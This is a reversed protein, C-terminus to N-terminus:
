HIFANYSYKDNMKKITRILNLIIKNQIDYGTEPDELILTDYSDKSLVFLKVEGKANVDASCPKGDFFSLEGFFMGSGFYSVVEQKQDYHYLPLTIAATGQGILYLNGGPKGRLCIKEGDKFNQETLRGAIQELEKNNLKDFLPFKRLIATQEM